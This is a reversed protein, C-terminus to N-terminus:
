PSRRYERAAPITSEALFREIVDLPIRVARGGPRVSEVRRQAVWKRWTVEALGTLQGAERCTLFKKAVTPGGSSRNSKGV